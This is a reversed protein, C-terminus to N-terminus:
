LTPFSRSGAVRRTGVLHIWDVFSVVLEELGSRTADDILRGEDDFLSEVRPIFLTPAPMVLAQVSHLMQRLLTQSIRTGWPGTTAGTIAVPRGALSQHPEGRTLWDIMNKVVGPTSQNYEPTAILMGDCGALADRLRRVGPPDDPAYELDQNFMPVTDLGDYVTITATPPALEAAARLVARNYSDKRLSGAVALISVPTPRRNV